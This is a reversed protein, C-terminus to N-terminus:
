HSRSFKAIVEIHHSWRFQDIVRVWDLNYRGKSLIEADSAFTEPNCSVLVITKVGSMALQKCQARAGARPPNIVAGGIKSLGEKSIPNKQLNRIKLATNDPSNDDIILVDLNKSQNRVSNIFDVINDVENYTATFVLIKKQTNM